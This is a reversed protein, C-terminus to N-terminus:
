KQGNILLNSVTETVREVGGMQEIFKNIKKELEQAKPSIFDILHKLEGFFSNNRYTMAEALEYTYKKLKDLEDKDIANIVAAMLGSQEIKDYLIAEDERDEASFIINTYLYIIHLNFYMDIKFSSYINNELSKQLTTMILDYKDDMSLYNVVEITSNNFNIIKNKPNISKNFDIEKFNILAM